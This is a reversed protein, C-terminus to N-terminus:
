NAQLNTVAAPAAQATPKKAISLAFFREECPFTGRLTAKATEPDIEYLKAVGDGTTAWWLHGTAPDFCMSQDVNDPWVETDGIETEEGTQKNIEFLVGYDDIGFLRGEYNCAICLYYNNLEGIDERTLNDIDARALMSSYGYNAEYIGYLEGSAPDEVLMGNVAALEEPVTAGYRLEPRDWHVNGQADFYCEYISCQTPMGGGLDMYTIYQFLDNRFVGGGNANMMTSVYVTDLQINEAPKFKYIGRLNDFSNTLDTEYVLNAIFEPLENDTTEQAAVPSALFLSALAFCMTTIKKRM